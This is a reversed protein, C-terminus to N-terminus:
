ARHARRDGGYWALRRADAKLQAMAEEGGTLTAVEHDVALMVKLGFDELEPAPVRMMGVLARGFAVSLDSYHEDIAWQEDFSAAAGRTARAFDELAAEARTV